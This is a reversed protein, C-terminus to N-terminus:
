RGVFELQSLDLAHLQKLQEMSRIPNEIIPGQPLPSPKDLIMYTWLSSLFVSSPSACAIIQHLVPPRPVPAESSLCHSRCCSVSCLGSLRQVWVNHYCPHKTIPKLLKHYTKHLLDPIYARGMILGFSSSDLCGGRVGCPLRIM